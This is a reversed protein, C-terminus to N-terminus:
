WSSHFIGRPISITETHVPRSPFSLRTFMETSVLRYVGIGKNNLEHSLCGNYLVDWKVRQNSEPTRLTDM